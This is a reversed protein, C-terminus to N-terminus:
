DLLFIKVSRWVLRRIQGKRSVLRGIVRQWFFFGVDVLRSYNDFPYFKRRKDWVRYDAIYVSSKKRQNVRFTIFLTNRSRRRFHLGWVCVLRFSRVCVLPYGLPCQPCRYRLPPLRRGLGPSGPPGRMYVFNSVHVSTTTGRPSKPSTGPTSREVRPSRSVCCFKSTPDRIEM